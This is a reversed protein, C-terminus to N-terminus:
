VAIIAIIRLSQSGGPLKLGEQFIPLALDLM